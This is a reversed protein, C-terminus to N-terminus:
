PVQRPVANLQHRVQSIHDYVGKRLRNTAGLPKHDPLAHWPSFSLNECMQNQATTDFTQPAFQLTAVKYFPADSEKWETMSDEVSMASSTRPQILFEM